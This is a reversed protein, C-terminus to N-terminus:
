STVCAEEQPALPLHSKEQTSAPFPGEDGSSTPVHPEERTTAPFKAKIELQSLSRQAGKLQM